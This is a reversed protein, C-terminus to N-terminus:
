RDNCLVQRRLDAMRQAHLDGAHLLGNQVALDHVYAGSIRAALKPNTPNNNPDLVYVTGSRGGTGHVYLLGTSFDLGINHSHSWAGSRFPTAALRPAKPNRMDIIQLGAGRSETVVYVFDGVVKGDRWTSSQGSIFARQVPSRPKSFDVISTGRTTMLIGYEDGNPAVYGWVDNSTSSNPSRFKSLLTCNRSVQASLDTLPFAFLLTAGLLSIASKSM